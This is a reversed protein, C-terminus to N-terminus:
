STPIFFRAVSYFVFMAVLFVAGVMIWITRGNGYGIGRGFKAYVFAAVGAAFLFSYAIDSM